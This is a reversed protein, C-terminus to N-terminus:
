ANQLLESNNNVTNCGWTKWIELTSDHPASAWIQDNKFLGVDVVTLM